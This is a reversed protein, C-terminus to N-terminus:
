QPGKQLPKILRAAPRAEILFASGLGRMPGSWSREAWTALRDSWRPHNVAFEFPLLEFDFYRITQFEFGASALMRKAQSASFHAPPIPNPDLGLGRRLRQLRRFPSRRNLLSMVFTGEKHLVRRCERLAEQPSQLYELVGLTMVVDFAGGKFPLADASAVAVEGLSDPRARCERAMGVSQDAAVYRFGRKRIQDGVIGPGAGIDLLVGTPVHAFWEDLIELRMRYFHALPGPGEYLDAYSGSIQNYEDRVVSQAALDDRM